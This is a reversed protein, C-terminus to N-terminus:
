RTAGQAGPLEPTTSLVQVAGDATRRVGSLQGVVRADHLSRAAGDLDHDFVEVAGDDFRVTVVWDNRADSGPAMSVGTVAAAGSAPVTEVVAAFSAQSGRQTVHLLPVRDQVTEGVGTGVLVEMPEDDPESDAASAAVHVVTRDTGMDFTALVAGSTTGTYADQIYEFGPGYAAVDTSAEAQASRVADARQHYLWDFTHSQGDTAHLRDVVLLYGPRLLLLRRHEIDAYASDCRAVVGTLDDTDIFTEFQGAVGQQSARDVLVTNHSLTARYWDRHIPLRYAQSRARGPDHALERGLGFSVFSLKDFHGHFGGFPGFALVASTPGAAGNLRLIAHGPGQKLLSGLPQADSRAAVPERSYLVAEFTLKESLLDRFAPERWQHWASEYRSAPISTTTADGFRPLTGDVMRYDLAVTYMDKVQPVSYLDIGLRRATELTREVATLTYFHYSWSNEYWMGGPLVSVKMQLAFGNDPDLLAQRIVDVDPLLAGLYLFASNHFTQWNSKGARHKDINEYLPRLLGSRIAQRDASSLAPRVLDFATAIEETWAAENLTQEFVHGSSARLPDDRKGQNASHLPYASYRQSYGLLIERAHQAFRQEGTIAFAWASHELNRSLAYHRREYIVQDYPYGSYVVGCKPCQHQSDDVTELAIQCVDCQYWQNHQGGEPPFDVELLLAAEAAQVRAAVADHAAGAGSQWAARLRELEAATCAVLPWNNLDPLTVDDATPMGSESNVDAVAANITSAIACAALLLVISAFNRAQGSTATVHKDM